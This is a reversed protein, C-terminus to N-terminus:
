TEQPVAGAATAVTPDVTEVMVATGPLDWRADAMAEMEQVDAAAAMAAMAASSAARVVM